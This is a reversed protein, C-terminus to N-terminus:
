REGGRASAETQVADLADAAADLSAESAELSGLGAMADRADNVADVGLALAELANARLAAEGETTADMEAVTNSADVLERRADGLATVTVTSFTRDDLQQDVALQATGVAAIGQGIAADVTSQVSTCGTLAAVLALTLAGFAPTLILSALRPHGARWAQARPM